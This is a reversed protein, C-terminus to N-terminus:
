IGESKGPKAAQWTGLRDLRNYHTIIPSRRILLGDRKEETILYNAWVDCKRCFPVLDYQGTEHFYRLENFKDSAWVNKVGDRFVNGIKVENFSDLCCIVVDGRHNIVMTDYLSGCPGREIQLKASKVSKDPSFQENVRVVDVYKLWDSVFEDKEDRNEETAVFSTGIRPYPREGRAKLMTFVAQKIKELERIGRIKELTANTVADLSIFISDLKIKVLFDALDETLLLGNTNITLPIEREKIAALYRNIDKMVFPETWSNPNIAPKAPKIEDFIRCADALSMKGRLAKVMGRDKSGHVYCMPCKLNCYGDQLSVILRKPFEPVERINARGKIRDKKKM